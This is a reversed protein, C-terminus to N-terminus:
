KVDNKTVRFFHNFLFLTQGLVFGILLVESNLSLWKFGYVLLGSIVALRTIVTKVVLALSEGSYKPVRKKYYEKFFLSLGLNTASILIGYLFAIKEDTFLFGLFVVFFALVKFFVRNNSM